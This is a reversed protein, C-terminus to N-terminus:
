KEEVFDIHDVARYLYDLWREGDQRIPKSPMSICRFTRDYTRGTLNGPLLVMEIFNGEIPESLGIWLDALCVMDHTTM